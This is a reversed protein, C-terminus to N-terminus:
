REIVTGCKGEISLSIPSSELGPAIAVKTVGHDLAEIAAYIKTIMGHGMRPLADKAELVNM